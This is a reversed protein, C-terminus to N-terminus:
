KLLSLFVMRIDFSRVRLILHLVYTATFAGLISRILQYTAEVFRDSTRYKSTARAQPMGLTIADGFIGKFCRYTDLCVSCSKSVQHEELLSASFGGLFEGTANM